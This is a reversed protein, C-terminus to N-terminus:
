VKESEMNNSWLEFKIRKIIPSDTWIEYVKMLDLMLSLYM